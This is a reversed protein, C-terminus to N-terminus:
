RDSPEEHAWCGLQGEVWAHFPRLGADHLQLRVHDGLVEEVRGWGLATRRGSKSVSDKRDSRIRDSKTEWGLRSFPLPSDISFARQVKQQIFMQQWGLDHEGRGDGSLGKEGKVWKVIVLWVRDEIHPPGNQHFVSAFGGPCELHKLGSYWLPPCHLLFM